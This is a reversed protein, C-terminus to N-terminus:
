LYCQTASFRELLLVVEEYSLLQEYQISEIMRPVNRLCTHAILLFAFKNAEHERQKKEKATLIDIGFLPTGHRHLFLHGLEHALVVNRENQDLRDDVFILQLNLTKVYMGKIDPLRVIHIKIGMKQCIENPDNTEFIKIVELVKPLMEKM